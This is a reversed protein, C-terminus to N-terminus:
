ARYMQSYPFTVELAPRYDGDLLALTEAFYFSRGRSLKWTANWGQDGPGAGYPEYSKQAPRGLLASIDNMKRRTDREVIPVSYLARKDGLFIMASHIVDSARWATAAQRLREREAQNKTSRLAIYKARDNGFVLVGEIKAGRSFGYFHRVQWTWDGMRTDGDWGYVCNRPLAKQAQSMTMRPAIRRLVDVSQPTSYTAAIAKEGLLACCGFFAVVLVRYTNM